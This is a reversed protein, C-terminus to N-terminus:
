EDGGTNTSVRSYTAVKLGKGKKPKAHHNSYYDMSFVWRLFSCSLRLGAHDQEPGRRDMNLDFIAAGPFYDLQIEFGHDKGIPWAKAHLKKFNWLKM